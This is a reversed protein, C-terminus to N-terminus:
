DPKRANLRAYFRKVTYSQGGEAQPVAMHRNTILYTFGGGKGLRDDPYFVLFGTGRIPGPLPQGNEECDVFLFVISKRLRDTFPSAKATLSDQTGSARREVQASAPNFLSTILVISVGLKKVLM